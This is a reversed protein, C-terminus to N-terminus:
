RQRARLPRGPRVGHEARRVLRAQPAGGAREHHHDVGTAVSRALEADGTLGTGPLVYARAMAQLRTPTGVFSPFPQDPWLSGAAPAMADRYGAARVGLRALRGRYPEAAPDFGSGASVDRWRRRLLEFSTDPTHAATAPTM